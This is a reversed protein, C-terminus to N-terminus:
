ASLGAPEARLPRRLLIVAIAIDLVNWM